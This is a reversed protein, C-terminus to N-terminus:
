AREERPMLYRQILTVLLVIMFFLVSIANARGYDGSTFAEDYLMLILTQTAHEPGGHTILHPQVFLKFAFVTTIFVVFVTTNRLLPVTIYFFQQIRNAREISAMEYLEGPIAQMGALFIMMQFGVGQWISMAVLCNMAQGPSDLFSRGPLGLMDLIANFVGFEPNYLLSWVVSLVAMSVVVPMFFCVRLLRKWLASGNVISAFVLALVTQVPVVVTVFYATNGLAKLFLGETFLSQYNDLGVFKHLDPNLLTRISQNTFSNYVAFLFPSIVFFFAAADGTIFSGM